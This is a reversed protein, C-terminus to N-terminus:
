EMIRILEQLLRHPDRHTYDVVQLGAILYVSSPMLADVLIAIIRGSKAKAVALSLEKTSASLPWQANRLSPWYGHEAADTMAEVIATGHDM